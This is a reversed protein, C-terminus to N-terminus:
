NIFIEWCSNIVSVYTTFFGNNVDKNGPSLVWICFLIFEVCCRLIHKMNLKLFLFFHWCVFLFLMFFFVIYIEYKQKPSLCPLIFVLVLAKKEKPLMYETRKDPIKENKMSLFCANKRHKGQPWFSIENKSSFVM